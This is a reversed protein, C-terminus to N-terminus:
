SDQKRVKNILVDLLKLEDESVGDSEAAIDWAGQIIQERLGTLLEKEQSDIIGDELAEELAQDYALLNIHAEVILEEEEQTIKGDQKAVKTMQSIVQEILDDKETM